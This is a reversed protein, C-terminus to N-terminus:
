SRWLVIQIEITTTQFKNFESTFLKLVHFHSIQISKDWQKIKTELGKLFLFENCSWKTRSIKLLITQLKLQVDMELNMLMLNIGHTILGINNYIFTIFLQADLQTPHMYSIKNGFGLAKCKKILWVYYLYGYRWSFVAGTGILSLEVSEFFVFGFFLGDVDM